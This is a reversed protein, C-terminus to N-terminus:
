RGDDDKWGSGGLYITLVTNPFNTLTNWVLFRGDLAAAIVKSSPCVIAKHLHFMMGGCELTFDSYTGDKLLRRSENAENGFGGFGGLAGSTSPMALWQPATIHLCQLSRPCRIVYPEYPNYFEGFNAAFSCVVLLGQDKLLTHIISYVRSCVRNVM